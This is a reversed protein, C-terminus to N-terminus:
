ELPHERHSSSSVRERQLTPPVLFATGTIRPELRCPSIRQHSPLVRSTRGISRKPSSCQYQDQATCAGAREQCLARKRSRYLLHKQQMESCCHRVFKRTTSSRLLASDFVEGRQAPPVLQHLLISRCEMQVQTFSENFFPRCGKPTQRTHERSAHSLPKTRWGLPYRVFGSRKNM